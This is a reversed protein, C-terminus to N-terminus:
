RDVWELHRDLEDFLDDDNDVARICAHVGAMPMDLYMSETVVRLYGADSEIARGVCGLVSCYATLCDVFNDDRVVIQTGVTYAIEGHLTGISVNCYEAIENEELEAEIFGIQEENSPACAMLALAFVAMGIMIKRM